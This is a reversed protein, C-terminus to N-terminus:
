NYLQNVRIGSALSGGIDDIVPGSQLVPAGCDSEVDVLVYMARM